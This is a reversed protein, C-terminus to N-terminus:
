PIFNTELGLINFEYGSSINGGVELLDVKALWNINYSNSGSAELLLYDSLGSGGGSISARIDWSTDTEGLITKIPTGVISAGYGDNFLLGELKYAANANANTARAVINVSFSFTRNSALLIADTNNNKFPSWSNNTTSTRLIFQSHQADGTTDFYGESRVSQGSNYIWGNSGIITGSTTTQFSVGSISYNNLDLNGGLQPSSDEVLNNIGGGGGGSSTTNITFIGDSSSLSIGTGAVLNKVPLLGSVSSNFDTINSSTHTHGSVSVNTGNVSLSTFNGSSSALWLGSSSNYQLFQGNTVGTVAVNHLEELEYGNQIKVYIKGSNKQKVIVYGLFVMNNPAYPKNALGYVVGGPTTPSLWMADGATSAASTDIGELLGENVVYGFENNDLNQKLIGLTKSSTAESSASALSITPHDGQAGNIYVVQGKTLGSGTVNKVYTYIDSSATPSLVSWTNSGDGIKIFNNTLDYGPEGSALIPNIAGWETFSGRRLQVLNNVPM